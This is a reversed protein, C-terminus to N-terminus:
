GNAVATPLIELLGSGHRIRRVHLGAALSPSSASTSCRRSTSGTPVFAPCASANAEALQGAAKTIAALIAQYDADAPEAFVAPGCLGLGGATKSLPAQLFLSQAPRSLNCLAQYLRSEGPQFYALHRILIIDQVSTLLPQPPLRRGFQYYFADKKVNRYSPKTAQTASRVVAASSTTSASDVPYMGSGLAAYTGAYTAGSDIWLRVRARERDTLRVEYHSGDILKMLRSASTGITRPARNGARQPRRLGPGRSFMTWYSTSYLPTLDGSLDVGGDRRDANHCRSATGISSRSFTALSISFTPCAPSRSSRAPRRLVAQLTGAAPRRRRPHTARPLRRM